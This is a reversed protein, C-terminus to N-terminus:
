SAINDSISTDAVTICLNAFLEQEESTLIRKKCLRDIVKCTEIYIEKTM